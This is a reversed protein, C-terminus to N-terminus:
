GCALVAFEWGSRDTQFRLAGSELIVATRVCRCSVIGWVPLGSGILFVSDSSLLRGLGLNNCLTCSLFIEGLGNLVM